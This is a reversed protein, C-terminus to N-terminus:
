AEVADVKGDVPVVTEVAVALDAGAGHPLKKLCTPLPPAATPAAGVGAAAGRVANVPRLVGAATAVAAGVAAAAGTTAEDAAADDADGSAVVVVAGELVAAVAPAGYVLVVPPLV